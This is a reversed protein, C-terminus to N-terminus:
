APDLQDTAVDTLEQAIHALRSGLPTLTYQTHTPPGHQLVERQIVGVRQLEMLRQSILQRAIGPASEKIEGFRVAEQGEFRRLIEVTGRRSFIRQIEPENARREQDGVGPMCWDYTAFPAM